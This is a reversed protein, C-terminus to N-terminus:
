RAESRARNTVPAARTSSAPSSVRQGDLVARTTGGGHSYAPNRVTYWVTGAEYADLKRKAVIGELDLKRAAQFLARGFEDVTLIKYLPGTDAPLLEELRHKREVLPLQRLDEGDLWLLDFAAFACYGRGRLLDRFVPRGQRDLAVIEGDLIASRGRLVAAVRECLDHFRDFRYDRRSRIECGLPSAYLLGRFGDYKPEFLWAADDFPEPRSVFRVPDVTVLGAADRLDPVPPRQSTPM